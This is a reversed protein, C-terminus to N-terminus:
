TEESLVKLAMEAAAQEASKKTRGQGSSLVTDDVMVDINFTREHAPGTAEVLKYVPPIRQSGHLLEQLRSKFDKDEANSAEQL